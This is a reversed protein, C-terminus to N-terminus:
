IRFVRRAGYCAAWTVIVVALWWSFIVCSAMMLDGPSAYDSSPFLFRLSGSWNVRVYDVFTFLPTDANALVHRSDVLGYRGYIDLEIRSHVAVPMKSDNCVMASLNLIVGLLGISILGSLAKTSIQLFKPWAGDGGLNRNVIKIRALVFFALILAILLISQPVSLHALGEIFNHKQASFWPWFLFNVIASRL